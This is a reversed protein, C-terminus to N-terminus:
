RNEGCLSWFARTPCSPSVSNVIQLNMVLTCMRSLKMYWIPMKRLPFRRSCSSKGVPLGCAQGLHTKKKTAVARERTVPLPFRRAGDVVSMIEAQKAKGESRESGWSVSESMVREMYQKV